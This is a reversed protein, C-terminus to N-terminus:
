RHTHAHARTLTRTRVHTTIFTFTHTANHIRALMVLHTTCTQTQILSTSTKVQLCQRFLANCQLCHMLTCATCELAIPQCPTSGDLLQRFRNASTVNVFTTRTRGFVATSIAHCYDVEWGVYGQSKKYQALLQMDQTMHIGIFYSKQACVRARVCVNVRVCASVCACLVSVYVNCWVCMCACECQVKMTHARTQHDTHARVVNVGCRLSGRQRVREITSQHKYWKPVPPRIRNNFSSSLEASLTSFLCLLCLLCQTGFPLLSVM